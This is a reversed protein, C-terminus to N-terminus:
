VVIVARSFNKGVPVGRVEFRYMQYEFDVRIEDRMSENNGRIWSSDNLFYILQSFKLPEATGSNKHALVFFDISTLFAVLFWHM